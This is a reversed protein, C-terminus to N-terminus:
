VRPPRELTLLPALKPTLGAVAHCLQSARPGFLKIEVAVVSLEEDDPEDDLGLLDSSHFRTQSPPAEDLECETGLDSASARELAVSAATETKLCDVQRSHGASSVDAFLM